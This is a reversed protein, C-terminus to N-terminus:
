KGGNDWQQFNDRAIIFEYSEVMSQLERRVDLLANLARERPNRMNTKRIYAIAGAIQLKKNKLLFKVTRLNEIQEKTYLRDKVGRRTCLFSEGLEAFAKEWFRLTSDEVQLMESVEKIKYYRKTLEPLTDPFDLLENSEIEDFSFLADMEKSEIDKSKSIGM